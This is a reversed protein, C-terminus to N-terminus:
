PTNKKLKIIYKYSINYTFKVHNGGVKYLVVQLLWLEGMGLDLANM